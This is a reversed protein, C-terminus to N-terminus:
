VFKVLYTSNPLNFSEQPVICHEFVWDWVQVRSHLKDNIRGKHGASPKHVGNTIHPFSNGITVNNQQQHIRKGSGSGQSLINPLPTAVSLHRHNHMSDPGKLHYFQPQQQQIQVTTSTQHMQNNTSTAHNRNSLSKNNNLSTPSFYHQIGRQHPVQSQQQPKSRSQSQPHNLLTQSRANQQSSMKHRTSPKAKFCDKKCHNKV